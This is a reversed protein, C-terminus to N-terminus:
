AKGNQEDLLIEAEGRGNRVAIVDHFMAADDVLERIGFQVRVEFLEVLVQPNLLARRNGAHEDFFSSPPTRIFCRILRAASAAAKAQPLACACCSLTLIPTILSM